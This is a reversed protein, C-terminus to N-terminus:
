FPFATIVKKGEVVLRIKKADPNGKRKGTQGGVYGIPKTFPAELVLRDQEQKKSTGKAKASAREYTDDLWRIVQAMDGYFVGHPGSRNPQDDLHRELHKLRHGEQSGPGYILGGPSVFRNGGVDKLLGYRLGETSSSANDTESTPPGRPKNSSAGKTEQQKDSSTQKSSKAGSSTATGKSGDSQTSEKKSESKASADQKSISGKPDSTSNRSSTSADKDVSKDQAGGKGKSDGTLNAVSPLNWGLKSNLVPQALAYGIAILVLAVAWKTPIQSLLNKNSKQM